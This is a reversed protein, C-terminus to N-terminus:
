RYMEKDSLKTSLEKYGSKCFFPNTNALNKNFEINQAISSAKERDHDHIPNNQLFLKMYETDKLEIKKKGFEPPLDGSKLEESYKTKFRKLKVESKGFSMPDDLIMELDMDLDTLRESQKSRENSISFNDLRHLKRNSTLLLNYQDPANNRNNNDNLVRGNNTCKEKLIGLNM